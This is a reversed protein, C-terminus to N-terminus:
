GVDCGKGRCYWWSVSTASFVTLSVEVEKGLRAGFGRKVM